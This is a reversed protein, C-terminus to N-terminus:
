KVIVATVMGFMGHEGEAHTLIHCHFAWIGPLNATVIADYREGPAVVLTDVTYPTAPRGDRAVVTFHFGHMHMPHLLEGGNLFRVLIKQGVKAVIPATAPFSKGNLNFGLEGDGLFLTHEVNWGHSRPEVIFAGYLGRGVQVAANHHSHYIFTGPDDVITFEYRFTEGTKILPQTIFPVGDMANPVTLGHFHMTTSEPLENHLVVRVRDGKRVRIEPGPVIGNYGYADVFQGPAAEWKVVKAALDFEKVGDRIIPKLPVGGLGSTKAPFAKIGAETDRDMQEPSMARPSATAAAGVVNLTGQMGAEKHGPVTCWLKYAGAVLEHNVPLEASGGPNVIATQMQMGAADLALSHPAKGNNRVSITFPKGAPASGTVAIKFDTLSVTVGAAQATKKSAAGCGTALLALAALAIGFRKITM